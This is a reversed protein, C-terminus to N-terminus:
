TVEKTWCTIEISGQKMWWVCLLMRYLNLKMIHKLKLVHKTQGIVWGYTYLFSRFISSIKKILFVRVMAHTYISYFPLIHHSNPIVCTEKIKNELCSFSNEGRSSEGKNTPKIFQISIFSIFLATKCYFYKEIRHILDLWM